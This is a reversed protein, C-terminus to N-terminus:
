RKPSEDFVGGSRVPLKGEEIARLMQDVVESSLHPPADTAKLVAAPSGGTVAEVSVAVEQGNRYPLSENLEITKGKAIGRYTM